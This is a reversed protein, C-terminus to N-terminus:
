EMVKRYMQKNGKREEVREEKLGEREEGKKRKMM